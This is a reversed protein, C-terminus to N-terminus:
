NSEWLVQNFYDDVDGSLECIIQDAEIQSLSHWEYNSNKLSIRALGKLVRTTEQKSVPQIVNNHTFATISQKTTTAIAALRCINLDDENELYLQNNIIEM